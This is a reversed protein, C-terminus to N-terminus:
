KAVKKVADPETWYVSTSDVAIGMRQGSWNSTALTTITGGNIDIKQVAMPSDNKWYVNTSDVAIGSTNDQGSALTTVPGGNIPVKKVDGGFETWYVNTSDVVIRQPQNLGSAVLTTVTGGNIGVKKVTGLGMGGGNGVWYVSTSDVTIKETSGVGSALTTVIGGNKPVKNVSNTETWYINDSDMTMGWITSLGSVITTVTGGSISVRKVSGNQEAWYVNNSDVAIGAPYSAMTALTTIPGGNIPVKNVTKNEYGNAPDGGDTWYVNTSDVAIDEVVNPLGSALITSDTPSKQTVVIDDFYQYHGTWWGWANIYMRIRYSPLSPLVGVNFEGQKIDNIYYELLGSTPTYVIKENFWTDWVPTMPSSVRALTACPHPNADIGVLYFGYNACSGGSNYINNGYAVGFDHNTSTTGDIKIVFSADFYSNAYHLKNKRTIVLPNLPNIDIWASQLWGGADTMTTSVHMEGGMEAVANGGYTWKLPDLSNDNFDDSFPLTLALVPAVTVNFTQSTPKNATNTATLTVTYDGAVGAYTSNSSDFYYDSLAKSKLGTVTTDNFVLQGNVTMSISQLGVDDNATGGFYIKNPLRIIPSLTVGSFTPFDNAVPTANMVIRAAIDVGPSFPDWGSSFARWAQGAPIPDDSKSGILVVDGVVTTLFGYDLGIFYREGITLPVNPYYTLDGYYPTIVDPGEWLLPGLTPAGSETTGLIIPRAASKIGMAVNITFEALNTNSAVFTGGQALAGAAALDGDSPLTNLTATAAPAVIVNFTQSTTQNATDTATLIVSYNGAVGAYTSNSSDFVYDSLTKLTLGSVTTDNFIPQGNVTISISKLGVDDNATGGFYIKNPLTVSTPLTAGSFTPPNDAAPVAVLYNDGANINQGSAISVSRSYPQYGIKSFSLTQTGVSIGTISYSGDSLTTTTRGGCTVSASSLAPGTASDIHLKGYVGGTVVNVTVLIPGYTGPKGGTRSNAEDNWNSANDVVHIGYFYKGVPPIDSFSGSVPGNGSQPNTKLQTWSGPVGNNDPARWLEVQKLGSGGADKVTYFITVVNGVGLATPSVSFATVNPITTDKTVRLDIVYLYSGSVPGYGNSNFGRFKVKIQKYQGPDAYVQFSSSGGSIFGDNSTSTPDPPDQPVSGDLTTRITYLISNANTSSVSVNQPSSKWNGNKPNVSVTSPTTVQSRTVIVVSGNQASFAKSFDSNSYYKRYGSSTGPDNCIIQTDTYGVVVVFHGNSFNYGRNSLYGAKVAAIVPQGNDIQAKLNNLNWGSAKSSNAFGGYEKSLAELKDVNTTSGNYNNIPDGYRQFLWNDIDKIGQETPSTNNYYSMVMLTSTQGCNNTGAWTGPPVQAKFEVSLPNAYGNLACVIIAFSIFALICM